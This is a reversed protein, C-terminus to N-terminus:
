YTYTSELLEESVTTEMKVLENFIFDLNLIAKLKQNEDFLPQASTIILRDTYNSFYLDSTFPESNELVHIFWTRDLFNKNKLNRFFSGEGHQTHVQSLREGQLNTVAAFQISPERKLLEKLDIQIKEANLHEMELKGSIRIAIKEAFHNANRIAVSFNSEFLRPIFHKAQAILEEASISTIRGQQYQEAVWNYIQKVGPHRKGVPETESKVVAEINDNLWRAIGAMGSKDTVMVRIPRNLITGTDFINYIEENKLIGDAHIGARTTNFDDGVFPYNNPVPALIEHKYYEAIEHIVTLDMGNTSGTLGAYEIVAGELPPNGTREGFGLLSANLSSAGYLWATSANTHVKHFDNHGHWELFESPYGVEHRLAHLMKPISRPLVAGPYSVGYGMTDCLRIKVPIGSEESLRLLQQAFPLVFGNFDARTLDEFHCRPIINQELATKVVGLYKDLVAARTTKMKLYIHYDSVSTLIGTEKLGFDKVLMFDDANARIWGTIEPYTHNQELCKEVARKDRNSYLFFETQRIIGNTGGLKHMLYYLQSIQEVSYPPRAQQGDRFTTDTIWISEPFDMSVTCGDFIIKPVEDYPFQERFLEPKKRDSVYLNNKKEYMM